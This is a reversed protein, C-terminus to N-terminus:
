FKLKYVNALNSLTANNMFFINECFHPNLGLKIPWLTLHKM